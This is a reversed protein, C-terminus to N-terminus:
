VIRTYRIFLIFNLFHVPYTYVLDIYVFYTSYLCYLYLCHIYVIYTYFIKTYVLYNYFGYSIWFYFGSILGQNRVETTFVRYQVSLTFSFVYTNKLIFKTKKERKIKDLNQM